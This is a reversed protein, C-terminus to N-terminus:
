EDSVDLLATWDREGREVLVIRLIGAGYTYAIFTAGVSWFRISSDVGLDQRTHGLKPFRALMAIAADIRAM